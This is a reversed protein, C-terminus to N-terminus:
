SINHWISALHLQNLKKQTIMLDVQDLLQEIFKKEVPFNGLDVNV